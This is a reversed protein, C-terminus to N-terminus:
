GLQGQWLFVVAAIAALTPLLQSWLGRLAGANAGIAVGSLAVLPLFYHTPFHDITCLFLSYVVASGLVWRAGRGAMPLVFLLGFGTYRLWTLYFEPPRQWIAPAEQNNNYHEPVTEFWLIELWHDFQGTLLGGLGIAAAVALVVGWTVALPRLGRGYIGASLLAVLSLAITGPYRLLGALLAVLAFRWVGDQRLAILGGVFACAYLSDPFNTSGPELMLKGHILAFLAPLVWAMLPARPAVLELLRAGSIGLLVLIWAFLANAGPLDPGRTVTATALVYSWLPPQNVTLWRDELLEQSWRQNEVINLIQYYHVFQLEGAAHVSWPADQSPLVWLQDCGEQEVALQPEADVLAGVVGRELYRPVPGEWEEVTPDTQITQGFLTAGIPGRCLLLVPGEGEFRITSPPPEMVGAGSEPWGVRREGEASWGIAEAPLEEAEAHHWWGDLQRGLRDQELGAWAGVALLTSVVAVLTGTRAPTVPRKWGLVVGPISVAAAWGLLTWAGGGLLKVLLIGPVAAVISLWAADVIVQLPEGGLRRAWGWGPALLLAPTLVLGQGPLDLGLAVAAALLLVLATM